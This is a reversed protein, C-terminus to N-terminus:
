KSSGNAVHDSHLKQRRELPSLRLKGVAVSFIWPAVRQMRPTHVHESTNSVTGCTTKMQSNESVFKSLGFDAVKITNYDPSKPDNSAYLLNEPQARV